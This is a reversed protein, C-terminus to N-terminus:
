AFRDEIQVDGDYELLLGAPPWTVRVHVAASDPDTLREVAEVRPAFLAPLTVRVPGLRLAARIQHYRTAGSERELRFHFEVRGFTEAVVDPAIRRQESVLPVGDFTRTWREVGHSQTISLHVVAAPNAAPLRLVRGAARSLLTTGRVVRM